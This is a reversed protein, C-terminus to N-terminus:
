NGAKADGKVEGKVEAKAEIDIKFGLQASADGNKPYYFFIETRRNEARGEDSEDDTTPDDEGRAAVDIRDAAVGEALLTSQVRRARRLSLEKNMDASGTPDARGIVVVHLESDGKLKEAAHKAEDEDKKVPADQGTDFGVYMPSPTSSCGLSLAAFLFAISAASLRTSTKM